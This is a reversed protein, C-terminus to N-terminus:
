VCVFVSMEVWQFLWYPCFLILEIINSVFM